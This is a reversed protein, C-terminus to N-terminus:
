LCSGAGGVGMVGNDSVVVLMLRVVWMEVHVECAVVLM